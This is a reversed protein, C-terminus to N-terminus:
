EKSITFVEGNNFKCEIVGTDLNPKMVLIVGNNFTHVVKDGALDVITKAQLGDAWISHIRTKDYNTEVLAPDPNGTVAAQIYKNITSLPTVNTIIIKKETITCASVIILFCIILSLYKM